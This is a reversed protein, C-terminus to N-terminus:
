KTERGFKRKVVLNCAEDYSLSKFRIAMGSETPEVTYDFRPQGQVLVEIDPPVCWDQLTFVAPSIPPHDAM